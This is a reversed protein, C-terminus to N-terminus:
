NGCTHCLLSQIDGLAIHHYAIPEQGILDGHDLYELARRKVVVTRSPDSLSGLRSRTTMRGLGPAASSSTLAHVGKHRCLATPLQLPLQGILSQLHQHLLCHSGHLLHVGLLELGLDASQSCGCM